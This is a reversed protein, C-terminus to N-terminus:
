QLLISLTPVIPEAGVNVLTISLSQYITTPTADILASGTGTSAATLAASYATGNNILGATDFCPQATLNVTQASAVTGTGVIQAAVAFHKYGYTPVSFKAGATGTAVTTPATFTPVFTVPPGAVTIDYITGAIIKEAM